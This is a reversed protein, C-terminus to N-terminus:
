NAEVLKVRLKEKPRLTFSPSAFEVAGGAAGAAAEVRFRSVLEVLIVKMEMMSFHKGICVRPGNHFTQFAYAGAAEGELNDWRDPNFTEADPGWVSPSLNILAPCLQIVTGKPLVVGAVEVEETSERPVYGVPFASTLM